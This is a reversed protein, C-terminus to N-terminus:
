LQEEHLSQSACQAPFIFLYFVCSRSTLFSISVAYRQEMGDGPNERPPSPGRIGMKVTTTINAVAISQHQGLWINIAALVASLLADERLHSFIGQQNETRKLGKVRGPRQREHVWGGTCTFQIEPPLWVLHTIDM